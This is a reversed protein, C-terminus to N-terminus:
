KIVKEIYGPFNIVLQNVKFKKNCFAVVNYLRMSNMVADPHQRLQKKFEPLEIKNFGNREFQEYLSNYSLIKTDLSYAFVIRADICTNLETLEDKSFWFNFGSQAPITTVMMDFQLTLEHYWSYRTFKLEEKWSRDAFTGNNLYFTGEEVINKSLNSCSTLLLLIFFSFIKKM